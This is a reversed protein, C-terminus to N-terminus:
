EVGLLAGAGTENLRVPGSGHAADSQSLTPQSQLTQSHWAAGIAPVIRAQLKTFAGAPHALIGGAQVPAELARRSARVALTESILRTTWCMQMIGAKCYPPWEILRDNVSTALM